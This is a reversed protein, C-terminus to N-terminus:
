KKQHCFQPEKICWDPLECVTVQEYTSTHRKNKKPPCGHSTVGNQKPHSWPLAKICRGLFEGTLEYVHGYAKKKTTTPLSVMNKNPHSLPPDKMCWCIKIVREYERCSANKCPVIRCEGGVRLHHLMLSGEGVGGFACLCGTHLHMYTYTHTYQALSRACGRAGGKACMCVWEGLYTVHIMRMWTQACIKELKIGLGGWM